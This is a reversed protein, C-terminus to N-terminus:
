NEYLKSLFEEMGMKRWMERIREPTLQDLYGDSCVLREYEQIDELRQKALRVYM